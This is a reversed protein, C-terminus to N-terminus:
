TINRVSNRSTPSLVHLAPVMKFSLHLWPASGPRPGMRGAEQTHEWQGDKNSAEAHINTKPVKLRDDQM